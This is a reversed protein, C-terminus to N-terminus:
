ETGINLFSCIEKFLKRVLPTAEGTLIDDNRKAFLRYRLMMLICIIYALGQDHQYLHKIM